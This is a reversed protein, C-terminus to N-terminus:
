GITVSEIHSNSVGIFNHPLVIEKKFWADEKKYIEVIKTDTLPLFKNNSKMKFLGYFNGTIDYFSNAIVCTIINVKQLKEQSKEMMTTARKKEIDNGLSQFDDYFYLIEELKIQIKDFKRYSASDDFMLHLDYMLLANEFCKENPNKWFINTSNLLDTTRLSANPIDILGSYKKGSSAVIVVKRQEAM